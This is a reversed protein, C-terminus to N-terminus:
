DSWKGDPGGPGVWRRPNEPPKGPGPPPNSPGHYMTVFEVRNRDGLLHSGALSIASLVLGGGLATWFGEVSFGAMLWGTLWLMFANIVFTFLGVTLINVPLTFLFVFPRVLFNLIGLVLAVIFARGLSSMRIGEFMYSILVLGLASLVWKIMIGRM